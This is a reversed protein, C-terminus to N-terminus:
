RKESKFQGVKKNADKLAKGMRALMIGNKFSEVVAQKVFKILSNKKKEDLGSLREELEKELDIIYGM